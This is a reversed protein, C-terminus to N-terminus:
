GRSRVWTVGCTVRPLLSVVVNFVEKLLRVTGEGEASLDKAAWTRKPDSNGERKRM